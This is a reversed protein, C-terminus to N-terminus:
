GWGLDDTTMTVPSSAAAGVVHAQTSRHETQLTAMVAGGALAVGLVLTAAKLRSSIRRM